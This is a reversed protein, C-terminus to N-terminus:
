RKSYMLQICRRAFLVDAIKAEYRKPDVWGIDSNPGPVQIVEREGARGEDIVWLPFRSASAMPLMQETGDEKGLNPDLFRTM